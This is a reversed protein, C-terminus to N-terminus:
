FNHISFIKFTHSRVRAKLNKGNKDDSCQFFTDFARIDINREKLFILKKM